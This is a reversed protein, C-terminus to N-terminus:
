RLKKQIRKYSAEMAHPGAAAPHDKQKKVAYDFAGGGSVWKEGKDLGERVFHHRIVDKEEQTWKHRM